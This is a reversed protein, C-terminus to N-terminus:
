TGTPKRSKLRFNSESVKSPVAQQESVPQRSVHTPKWTQQLHLITTDLIKGGIAIGELGPVLALSNIMNAAVAKGRNPDGPVRWSWPFMWMFWQEAVAM